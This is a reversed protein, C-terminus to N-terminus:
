ESSLFEISDKLTLIAVFPVLITTKLEKPIYMSM